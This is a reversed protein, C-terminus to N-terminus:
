TPGRRSRLEAFLALYADANARWTPGQAEFRRRGSEGIRRARERDVALARLEALLRADDGAPVLIGDVGHEIFSSIGEGTTALVPVGLSM